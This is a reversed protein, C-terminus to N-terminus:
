GRDSDRKNPNLEILGSDVEKFKVDRNATILAIEKKHVLEQQARLAEANKTIRMQELAFENELRRRNERKVILATATITSGAAAAIFVFASYADVPGIISAINM